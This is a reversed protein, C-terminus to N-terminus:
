QKAELFASSQRIERGHMADIAVGGAKHQEGDIWGASRRVMLQKRFSSDDFFVNRGRMDRVIQLAPAPSDLVSQFGAVRPIPLSDNRAGDVRDSFNFEQIDSGSAASEPEKRRRALFVLKAHVHCRDSARDNAVREVRCDLLPM